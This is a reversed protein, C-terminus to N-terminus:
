PLYLSSTNMSIIGHNIFWSIVPPGWFVSKVSLVMVFGHIHLQHLSLKNSQQQNHTCMSTKVFWNMIPSPTRYLSTLCYLPSKLGTGCCPGMAICCVHIQTLIPYMNEITKDYTKRILMDMLFPANPPLEVHPSLANLCILAACQCISM